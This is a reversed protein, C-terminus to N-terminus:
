RCIESASACCRSTPTPTAASSRRTPSADTPSNCACREVRQRYRPALEGFPDEFPNRPVRETVVRATYINVVAPAARQVAPAYSTPGSVTASGAPAPLAAGAPHDIAGPRADAGAAPGPNGAAAGGPTGRPVAGAGAGSAAEAAEPVGRGSATATAPSADRATGGPLLEPRFAVILFALALGGVVSGALFVLGSQARNM